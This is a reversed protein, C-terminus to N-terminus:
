AALEKRGSFVLDEASLGTLEMLKRVMQPRMTRLGNEWRTWAAQTAGVLRGAQAATLGRQKRWKALPTAAPEPMNPGAIFAIIEDTKEFWERHVRHAAFRQHLECEQEVTGPWYGLLKCEFPAGTALSSVRKVPKKSFGIKIRGGCEVAYIYGQESM